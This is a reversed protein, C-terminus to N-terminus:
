MYTNSSLLLFNEKLQFRTQLSGTDPFDQSHSITDNVIKYVRVFNDNTSYCVIRSGDYTMAQRTVVCSVGTSTCAPYFTTILTYINDIKRYYNIASNSIASYVSGDGSMSISSSSQIYIFNYDSSSSVAGMLTRLLCWLVLMKM